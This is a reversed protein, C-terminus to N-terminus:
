YQCLFFNLIVVNNKKLKGTLKHVFTEDDKSKFKIYPVRTHCIFVTDEESVTDVIELDKLTVNIVKHVLGEVKYHEVAQTLSVSSVLLFVSTIHRMKFDDASMM